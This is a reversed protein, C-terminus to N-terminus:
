RTNKARIGKWRATVMQARTKQELFEFAVVLFRANTRMEGVTQLLRSTGLFMNTIAGVYQTVSGVGFAGAWAKLCVFLYVLGTLIKSVSESAAMWLGMPGRAWCAIRSRFGYGEEMKKAYHVCVNEQQSYVRLDAARKRDEGWFAMSSISEIVKSCKMWMGDGIPIERTQM